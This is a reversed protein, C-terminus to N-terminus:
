AKASGELLADNKTWAHFQKCEPCAVRNLGISRAHWTTPDATLGTPVPQGTVRCRIMVRPLKPDRTM